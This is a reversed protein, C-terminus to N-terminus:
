LQLNRRRGFEKDSKALAERNRERGMRAKKALIAPCDTEGLYCPLFQASRSEIVAPDRLVKDFEELKRIKYYNSDRCGFFPLM